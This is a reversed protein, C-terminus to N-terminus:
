RRLPLSAMATTGAHSTQNEAANATREPVLLVPNVASPAKTPEQTTPVPAATAPPRLHPDHARGANSLQQFAPNSPNTQGQSHLPYSHVDPPNNVHPPPM